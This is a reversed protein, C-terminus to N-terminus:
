ASPRGANRKFSARARDDLAPLGTGDDPVRQGGIVDLVWQSDKAKVGGYMCHNPLMSRLMIEYDDRQAEARQLRERLTTIELRVAILEDSPRQALERVEYEVIEDFNPPDNSDEGHDCARRSKEVVMGTAEGWCIDTVNEPWGDDASCDRSDDLAAEAAERAQAATEHWALGLGDPYYSFYSLSPRVASRQGADPPTPTM